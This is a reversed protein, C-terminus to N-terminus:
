NRAPKTGEKPTVLSYNDKVALKPITASKKHLSLKEGVAPKDDGKLWNLEKLDALRIAEQQAIDHLTEGPQVIHFENLGLKRKRQLYVLQDSDTQEARQIDNFEFLRSIDVGYKQAISLYSVGKKVFVVRTENIKFEGEPFDKKEEVTVMASTIVPAVPNEDKAAATIIDAQAPDQVKGMAIFTYLQLNYDEIVKILAQSYKSSTAYGAKKLGYAWGKYDTPDLNFLFAYRQNGRLFESHDRYSDEATPYKRFCENRLDDDHKVSEGTWNSKCKIGFHNSSRMVLNSTGATTEFIGQALKISAPVGTRQMESIAIGKYTEIYGKILESNQAQVSEGILFLTLLIIVLRNKLTQM